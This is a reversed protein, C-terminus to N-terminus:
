CFYIDREFTFNPLHITAYDCVDSALNQHHHSSSIENVFKIQFPM